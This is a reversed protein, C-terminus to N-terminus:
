VREYRCAIFTCASYKDSLVCLIERAKYIYTHEHARTHLSLCQRKQSKGVAM